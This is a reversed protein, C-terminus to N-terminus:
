EKAPPTLEKVKAELAAKDEALQNALTQFQLSQLVFTGLVEKLNDELSKAM